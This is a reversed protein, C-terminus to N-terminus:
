ISTVLRTKQAGSIGFNSKRGPSRGPGRQPLRVASGLRGLQFLPPTGPLSLSLLSPFLYSPPFLFSPFPQSPFPLFPLLSPPFLLFNAFPFPPSPFSTVFGRELDQIRRQNCLLFSTFDIREAIRKFSVFTSFDVRDAPLSNRVNRVRNNFYSARVSSLNSYSHM